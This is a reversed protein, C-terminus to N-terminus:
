EGLMTMKFMNFLPLFVSVVYGGVLFALVVILNPEMNKFVYESRSILSAARRNLDELYTDLQEQKEATEMLWLESRPIWEAKSLGQSIRQGNRVSVLTHEAAESLLPSERLSRLNELATDVGVRQKLLLGLVGSLHYLLYGRFLRGYFPLKILLQHYSRSVPAFLGLGLFAMSALWLVALLAVLVKQVIFAITVAKPFLVSDSPILLHMDRLSELFHPMVRFTIFLSLALGVTLVLAPYTLTSRLTTMIRRRMEMFEGMGRLVTPMDGGQEAASILSVYMEPFVGPSKRMAESTTGGAEAAQAANRVAERFASKRAHKSASRLGEALSFGAADMAILEANLVELNKWDARM